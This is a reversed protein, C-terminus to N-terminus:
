KKGNNHTARLRSRFIILSSGAVAGLILAGRVIGMAVVWAGALFFLVMSPLSGLFTSGLFVAWGVSTLGAAYSIVDYFPDSPLRILVWGWFTNLPALREKWRAIAVSTRPARHRFGALLRGRGARSIGFAGAAGVMIGIEALAFARVVGFAAIGALDVLAGPIPAVIVSVARLVIFLLPGSVVHHSFYVRMWAQGDGLSM